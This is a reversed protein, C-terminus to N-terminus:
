GGLESHIAWYQIEITDQDDGHYDDARTDVVRFFPEWHRPSPGAAPPADLPIVLTEWAGTTYALEALTLWGGNEQVQLLFKEDASMAAPVRYILEMSHGEYAAPIGQWSFTTEHRYPAVEIEGTMNFHDISWKQSSQHLGLVTLEWTSTTIDGYSWGGPLPHLISDLTIELTKVNALGVPLALEQTIIPVASGNPYIRLYLSQPSLASWALDKYGTVQLTVNPLVDGTRMLAPPLLKFRMYNGHLLSASNSPMTTYQGNLQRLNLPSNWNGKIQISGPDITPHVKLLVKASQDQTEYLLAYGAPVQMSALSSGAGLLIMYERYVSSIETDACAEIKAYYHFRISQQGDTGHVLYVVGAITEQFDDKAYGVVVGGMTAWHNYGLCRDPRRWVTPDETTPTLSLYVGGRAAHDILGQELNRMVAEYDTVNTMGKLSSEWLSDRLSSMLDEVDLVVGDRQARSTTGEFSNLQTLASALIVFGLVLLMGSVFLLNGREDGDLGARRRPMRSVRGPVM